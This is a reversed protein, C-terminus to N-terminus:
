HRPVGVAPRLYTTGDEHVFVYRDDTRGLWPTSGLSARRIDTREVTRGDVGDLRHVGDLNRGREVVVLPGDPAATVVQVKGDAKRAWARSGDTLSHAVVFRGRDRVAPVRRHM